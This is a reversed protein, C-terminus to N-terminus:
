RNLKMILILLRLLLRLTAELTLCIAKSLRRPHPCQHLSGKLKVKLNQGNWIGAVRKSQSTLQERFTLKRKSEPAHNLM